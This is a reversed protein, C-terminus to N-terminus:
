LGAVYNWRKVASDVRREIEDATLPRFAGPSAAVIPHSAALRHGARLSFSLGDHPRAGNLDRTAVVLGELQARLKEAQVSIRAKSEAESQMVRGDLISM